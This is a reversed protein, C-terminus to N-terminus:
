VSMRCQGGVQEGNFYEAGIVNVLPVLLKAHHPATYSDLIATNIHGLLADRLERDIAPTADRGLTPGVNRLHKFSWKGIHISDNRHAKDRAATRRLSEMAKGLNTRKWPGGRHTLFVAPGTHSRVELWTKLALVTSPLLPTRRKISAGVIKECKWRPLEVYPTKIDLHLNEVRLRQLDVPDFACNCGLLLQARLAVGHDKRLRAQFLTGRDSPTASPLNKIDTEAWTRSARLYSHFIPLPMPLRNEIAPKYSQTEFAVAWELIEPPWAWEAFERKVTRLVNRIHSHMDNAWKKSQRNKSEETIWNRWKRFDSPKLDAVRKNGVQGVFKDWVRCVNLLHPTEVGETKRLKIGRFETKVTALSQNGGVQVHLGTVPKPAPPLGAKERYEADFERLADTGIRDELLKFFLAAHSAELGPLPTQKDDLMVSAAAAVDDPSLAVDGKIRRYEQVALELDRGLYCRAGEDNIYYFRKTKANLSIGTVEEGEKEGALVLYGRVRKVRIHKRPRAM